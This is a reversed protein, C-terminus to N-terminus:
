WISNNAMTLLWQASVRISQKWLDAMNFGVLKYFIVAKNVHIGYVGQSGCENM